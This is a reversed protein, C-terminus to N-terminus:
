KYKSQKNLLAQGELTILNLTSGNTSPVIFATTSGVFRRVYFVSISTFYSELHRFRDSTM